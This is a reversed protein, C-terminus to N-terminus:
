VISSTETARLSRGPAWSRLFVAPLNPNMCPREVLVFFAIGVALVAILFPISQALLTMTFSNEWYLKKLLPGVGAIVQGHLLYLSYCMGGTVAIARRTLLWSLLEGHLA